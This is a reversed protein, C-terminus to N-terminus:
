EEDESGPARWPEGPKRERVERLLCATVFSGTLTVAADIPVQEEVLRRLFLGVAAALSTIEEATPLTM